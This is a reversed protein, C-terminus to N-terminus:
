EADECQLVDPLANAQPGDMEIIGNDVVEGEIRPVVFYITPDGEFSEEDVLVDVLPGGKYEATFYRYRRM